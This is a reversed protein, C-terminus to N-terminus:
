GFVVIVSVRRIMRALVVSPMEISSDLFFMSISTAALFLSLASKFSLRAAVATLQAIKLAAIVTLEKCVSVASTLNRLRRALWRQTISLTVASGVISFAAVVDQLSAPECGLINTLFYVRM